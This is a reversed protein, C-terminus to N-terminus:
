WHCYNQLSRVCEEVMYLVLNAASHKVRLTNAASSSLAVVRMSIKPWVISYFISLHLIEPEIAQVFEGWVISSFFGFGHVSALVSGLLQLPLLARVMGADMDQCSVSCPVLPLFIDQAQISLWLLAFESEPVAGEVRQIGLRLM